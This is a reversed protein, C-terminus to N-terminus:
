SRREPAPTTTARWSGAGVAIGAAIFAAPVYVLALGTVVLAVAVLDAITTAIQKRM